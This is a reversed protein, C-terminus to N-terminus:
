QDIDIERHHKLTKNLCRMWESSWWRTCLWQLTATHHNCYPTTHSLLDGLPGCCGVLHSTGRERKRGAEGLSNSEICNKQLVETSQHPKTRGNLIPSLIYSIKAKTLNSKTCKSTCTCHKTVWGPDGRFGQSEYRWLGAVAVIQYDRWVSARMMAM